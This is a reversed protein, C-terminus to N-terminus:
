VCGNEQIDNVYRYIEAKRGLNRLIDAINEFGSLSLKDAEGVNLTINSPYM